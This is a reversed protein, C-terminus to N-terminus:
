RGVLDALRRKAEIAPPQNWEIELSRTYADLAGRYDKRRELIAGIKNFPLPTRAGAQAWARYAALTADEDQLRECVQGLAQHAADLAPDLKIAESLLTRAEADKGANFAALGKEMMARVQQRARDDM